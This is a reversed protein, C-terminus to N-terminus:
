IAKCNLYGFDSKMIQIERGRIIYFKYFFTNAHVALVILDFKIPFHLCILTNRTKKRRSLSTPAQQESDHSRITRATYSSLSQHYALCYPADWWHSDREVDLIILAWSLSCCAGVEKLDLKM